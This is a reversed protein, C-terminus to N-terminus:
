VLVILPRVEVDKNPVLGSDEIADALEPWIRMSRKRLSISTLPLFLPRASTRPNEVRRERFSVLYSLGTKDRGQGGM